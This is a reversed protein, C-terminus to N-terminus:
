SALFLGHFIGGTEYYIKGQCLNKGELNAKDLVDWYRKRVHLSDTDSYYIKNYYFGSIKRIFDNM